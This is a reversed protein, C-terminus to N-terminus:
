KLGETCNRCMDIGKRNTLIQKRFSRYNEDKWIDKFSRDRINGM